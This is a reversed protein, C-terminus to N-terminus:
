EWKVAEEGCFDFMYNLWRCFLKAKEESGFSAVKVMQNPEDTGIWLAPNKGFGDLQHISISVQGRKYTMGVECGKMIM